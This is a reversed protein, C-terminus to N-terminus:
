KSHSHSLALFIYNKNGGLGKALDSSVRRWVENAPNGKRHDWKKRRNINRRM